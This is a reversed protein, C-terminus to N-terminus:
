GHPLLVVINIIAILLGLVGIAVGPLINSRRSADEMQKKMQEELRVVREPLGDIRDLRKNVDGFEARMLERTSELKELVLDMDDSM